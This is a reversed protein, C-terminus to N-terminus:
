STLRLKYSITKQLTSLRRIHSRINPTQRPLIWMSQNLFSTKKRTISPFSVGMLWLRSVQLISLNIIKPLFFLLDQSPNWSMKATDKLPFRFAIIPQFYRFKTCKPYKTLQYKLLCNQTLWVALLLLLKVWKEELIQWLLSIKM